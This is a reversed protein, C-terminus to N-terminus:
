YVVVKQQFTQGEVSVIVAYLGPLLNSVDFPKVDAVSTNVDAIIQTTALNVLTVRVSSEEDFGNIEVNLENNTPNPYAKVGALGEVVATIESTGTGAKRSSSSTTYKVYLLPARSSSGNYSEATRVGSGNIIFAISNNTAYGSRDVIEQVIAKLEPTRQDAGAAGVSSWSPPNWSVTASTKARGSINGSTSTFTSANDTDHGYISLVGSSYKTEDVTFQIYAEEIQAGAPIQHNNFRIGVHQNGASQHTDYVLELDSSNLYMAGSQAEEADDNGTSVRVSKEVTVTPNPDPDPDPDPNSSGGVTYEIHLLPANSSSGDYAEATREGTGTVVVVLSNGSNWGSRGIVPQLISALNPTRQDAGSAGVSSWGAPNWSVSSSTLSRSSVNNSSSSFAGANDTNQAKITLSTSGTNTEDVTFQIYANTITAGQPINVGTFRMGIRQNGKSGDAVLELDSSNTYMSGSSSEEVDDMSSNIRKEFTQQVVGVFFSSTATSTKGKDDTAEAKITYTGDQTPTYSAQYPSQSDTSILSNNIYFKVNSVSGDADSATASISVAQNKTQQSGNSPSSIAVQPALNSNDEITVVSGNSPNWINLNSPATFIDNDSVSGVSTANDVQITRVEIRDKDVFIWKFQNFRGSNRTWNKDDNNSRLPAGWCGEGAYVTGNADDRIFGEDSGSGSSPVVPWTTKVTHADCEIVLKVKHQQFLSAWNSYQSNGESKSSVHPRMPKHYQAMKWKVSANSSLDGSLWSTQSGSISMETNLTYTRVLGSFTIAYYASSSPTDFLNYITSNSSEHNGRAAVIPIMRGDSATTLQWDNFWNQWQSNTDNDTMDGGFFVAHPRLKSVLRNANQRPTRNNRSDGGAIFSLRANPDNPATKFWFRQSTGESDRVVFYYATNASLNTLRAFQNNMGRYSVSRDVTKSNSYNQWNTGHDTTGYYVTAGSGSIQNWAITITSSPDDRLVLRYKDNSAKATTLLALILSM